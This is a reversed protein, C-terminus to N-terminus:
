VATLRKKSAGQSFRTTPVPSKGSGWRLIGARGRFVYKTQNFHVKALNQIRNDTRDGNTHFIRDGDELTDHHLEWVRRAESMLRENGDDAVVKVYIYGNRHQTRTGVPYQGLRNM